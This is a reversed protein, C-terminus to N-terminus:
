SVCLTEKEEKSLIRFQSSCPLRLEIMPPLLPLGTTFLAVFEDANDEVAVNLREHEVADETVFLRPGYAHIGGGDAFGQAFKM